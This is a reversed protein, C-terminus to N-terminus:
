RDYLSRLADVDAVALGTASSSGVDADSRLLRRYADFYRQGDDRRRFRYMITGFDDTHRLGLAHGLEHLATLYLAIRQLRGDEVPDRNILVQAAVILGSQPDVGPQTEGYIGDGSVFRVRIRAGDPDPVGQLTLRGGAADSWNKMALRVLDVGYPPADRRDIWVHITAGRPWHALVPPAASAFALCLAVARPMM